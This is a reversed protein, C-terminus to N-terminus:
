LEKRVFGLEEIIELDNFVTVNTVIEEVTCVLDCAGFSM